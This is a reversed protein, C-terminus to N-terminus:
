PPLSEPPTIRIGSSDVPYAAVRQPRRRAVLAVQSLSCALRQVPTISCASADWRSVRLLFDCYLLGLTLKLFAMSLTMWLPGLYTRRYRSRVDDISDHLWLPVARLGSGFVKAEERLRSAADANESPLHEAM